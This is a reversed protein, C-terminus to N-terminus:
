LSRKPGKNCIDDNKISFILQMCHEKEGDVLACRLQVQHVTSDTPYQQHWLDPMTNYVSPFLASYM